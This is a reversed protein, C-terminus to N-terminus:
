NNNEYNINKFAIPESIIVFTREIPTEWLSKKKKRKIKKSGKSFTVIKEDTAHCITISLFYNNKNHKMNRCM